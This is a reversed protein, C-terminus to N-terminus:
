STKIYKHIGLLIGIFLVICVFNSSTAAVVTSPNDVVVDIYEKSNIEENKEEPVPELVDLINEEEESPNEPAIPEEEPIVEPGEEPFEEEESSEPIEEKNEEEPALEIKENEDLDEEPQTEEDNSEEDKPLEQELEDKEEEKPIEIEPEKDISEKVNVFDYQLNSTNLNLIKVENDLVYGLPAKIEELYYTDYPLDNVIIYGFDDTKLNISYPFNEGKLNFKVM